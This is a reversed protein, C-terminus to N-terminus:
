CPKREDEMYIFHGRLLTLLGPYRRILFIYTLTDVILIKAFYHHIYTHNPYSVIQGTSFIPKVQHNLHNM